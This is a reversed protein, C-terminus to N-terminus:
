GGSAGRRRAARIAVELGRASFGVKVQGNILFTPIEGRPNARRM